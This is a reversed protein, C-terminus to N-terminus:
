ENLYEFACGIGTTKCDFADGNYSGFVKLMSDSCCPAIKENYIVFYYIDRGWTNPGKFGNVDLTFWGCRKDSYMTCNESDWWFAISAGNALLLGSTRGDNFFASSASRGDIFKVKNQAIFCSNNSNKNNGCNRIVKLKSAFGNKICSNNDRNCAVIGGLLTGGGDARIQNFAQAMLSYNRKLKVKLYFDTVKQIFVPITLMAVMGVVLLTVLLEAMTFAKKM